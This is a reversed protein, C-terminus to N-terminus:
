TRNGAPSVPAGLLQHARAVRPDDSDAGLNILVLSSAARAAARALELAASVEGKLKPNGTESLGAALSRLEAAAQAIALPIDSAGSRAAERAPGASAMYAAYAEADDEALALVLTRLERARTATAADTSFRAAMETLAAAIGATVAAAAGAGPAATKAALEDLLRGLAVQRRM